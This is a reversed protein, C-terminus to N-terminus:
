IQKIRKIQQSVRLRAAVHGSGRTGVHRFYDRDADTVHLCTVACSHFCVMSYPPNAHASMIKVANWDELAKKVWSVAASEFESSM